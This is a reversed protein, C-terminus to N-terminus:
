QCISYMLEQTRFYDVIHSSLVLNFQNFIRIISRSYVSLIFHLYCLYTVMTQPGGMGGGGGGGMGQNRGQM